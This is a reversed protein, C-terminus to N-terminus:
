AAAGKRIVEIWVERLEARLEELVDHANEADASDSEDHLFSQAHDVLDLWRSLRESPEELQRRTDGPFVDTM